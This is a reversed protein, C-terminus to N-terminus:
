NILIGVGFAVATLDLNLGFSSNTDTSEFDGGPDTTMSTSQYGLFGYNADLFINDTVFYTLGVGLGANFAGLGTETETDAALDVDTMTGTGFGFGVFGYMSFQDTYPMYYRGDLSVSFIGQSVETEAIENTLSQGGYGLGLNVSLNDMIFYGGSLSINYQSGNTLETTTGDFDNSSGVSSFGLGGTAQIAGQDWQANASFSIGVLAAAAFISKKM